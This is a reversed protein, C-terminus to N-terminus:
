YYVTINRKLNRCITETLAKGDVCFFSSLYWNQVKWNKKSMYCRVYKEPNAKVVVKMDHVYTEVLKENGEHDICIKSLKKDLNVNLPYEGHNMDEALHVFSLYSMPVGIGIVKPNFELMRQYPSGKGFPYDCIEHDKLVNRPLGISAISKTPHLSRVSDKHKRVYESFAGMGSQTLIIDFKEKSQMYEKSSGRPFCPVTVSGKDGIIDQILLLIDRTSLDTNVLSLSAHVFLHDGTKVGFSDILINKLDNERLKPLSHILRKRAIFEWSKLRKKYNENLLPSLLKRILLRM